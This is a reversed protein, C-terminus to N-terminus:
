VACVPGPGQVLVQVLLVHAWLWLWSRPGWWGVTYCGCPRVGTWTVFVVV